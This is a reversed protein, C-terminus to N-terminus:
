RAEAFLEDQPHVRAEAEDRKRVAEAGAGRDHRLLLVRVDGLNRAAPRRPQRPVEDGHEARLRRFVNAHRRDILTVVGASGGGNGGLNMIGGSFVASITMSM